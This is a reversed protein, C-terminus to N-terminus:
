IKGVSIFNKGHGLDIKKMLENESILCLNLGKEPDIIKFSKGCCNEVLVIYHALRSAVAVEAIVLRGRALEKIISSVGTFNNVELGKKAEKELVKFFSNIFRDWVSQEIEGPTNKDDKPVSLFYLADLGAKRIYKAIKAANEAEGYKDSKWYRVKEHIEVVKENSTFFGKLQFYNVVFLICVAGPMKLLLEQDLDEEALNEFFFKNCYGRM